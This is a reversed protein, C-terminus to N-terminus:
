EYGELRYLMVWLESRTVFDNPRTGDSIGQSMVWARARAAEAAYDDGDAAPAGRGAATSAGRGAAAAEGTHPPAKASCFGPRAAHTGTSM